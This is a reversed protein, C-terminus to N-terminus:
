PIIPSPQSDVVGIQGKLHVVLLNSKPSPGVKRKGMPMFITAFRPYMHLLFWYHKFVFTKGVKQKYLDKADCILDGKSKGLENLEKIM